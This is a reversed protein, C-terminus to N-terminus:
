RRGRSTLDMTFARAAWVLGLALLLPVLYAGPYPYGLVAAPGSVPAPEATVVPAEDGGASEETPAPGLEPEAVAPPDAPEFGGSSTGGGSVEGGEAVSEGPDPDNDQDPRTPEVPEGLTFEVSIPQATLTDAEPPAEGGTDPLVSERDPTSFAVHWIDTPGIDSAPLLAVIGTQETAWTELFPALDVTMVPQVAAAPDDQEVLEVPSSFVCLPTPSQTSVGQDEPKFRGTALCAQLRATDPAVSGDVAPGVPLTLTAGVLTKGQPIDVAVFARSEEIGAAVGVHITGEPYTSPIPVDVCGILLQCTPNPRYWSGQIDGKADQKAQASPNVLGVLAVVSLTAAARAISRRRSPAKVHATM